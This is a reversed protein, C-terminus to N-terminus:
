KEYIGIIQTKHKYTKMKPVGQELFPNWGEIEARYTNKFLMSIPLDVNDVPQTQRYNTKSTRAFEVMNRPTQPTAEITTPTPQSPSATDTSKLVVQEGANINEAFFLKDDSSCVFLSKIKVGLGNTATPAEPDSWNFTINLKQQSQIKRLMFYAPVRPLIWSGALVQNGAANMKLEITGYDGEMYPMIETEPSFQPTGPTFTSYYGVKGWTAATGRRQDLITITDSSSQSLIGESIFSTLLVIFSALLSTAPVTWILWIRRNLARLVFVNVPGIVVAFVVILLLVLRINVGYNALVPMSNHWQEMMVFNQTFRNSQPQMSELKSFQKNGAEDIKRVISDFFSSEKAVDAGTAGLVFVKGYVISFERQDKNEASEGNQLILKWDVPLEWDKGLIVIMGGIEVYQMIANLVSQKRMSLTKWEGSTIVLCDFRSYALWSESWEEIPLNSFSCNMPQPPEPTASGHTVRSTTSTTPTPTKATASTTDPTDTSRKTFFDRIAQPVQQTFCIQSYAPTGGYYSRTNFMHNCTRSMEDRQNRGDINVTITANSSYIDLRVPPQLMRLVVYCGAPVEVADTSLVLPKTRNFTEAPSLSLKVKHPETDRNQVRFRYEQYGHITNNSNSASFDAIETITIQGYTEAFLRGTFLVCILVFCSIIKKM